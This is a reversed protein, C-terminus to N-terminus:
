FFLSLTVALAVMGVVAWALYQRLLGSQLRTLAKGASLLTNATENVMGDVYSNDIWGTLACFRATFEATGNVMGDIWELDFRALWANIALMPRILIAKYLEDMFWKNILCHHLWSLRRAWAEASIWNGYYTMGSLLIGLSAILISLTMAKEHAQHEIPDHEAHEPAAVQEHGPGPGGAYSELAPKQVYHDIWKPGNGPMGASILTMVALILLPWSMVGEHDANRDHHHDHDHGHDHSHGHDHDHDHPHAHDHGHDHDPAGGDAHAPAWRPTGFFTMFILRFMYFATLAAGCFGFTPLLWQSPDHMYKALAAGLVADKSYFGSMLPVGSIALTAILMTWFTIPLKTRLGGM